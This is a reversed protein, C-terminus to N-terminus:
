PARDETTSGAWRIGAAQRAIGSRQKRTVRTSRPKIGKRRFRGLVVATSNTGKDTDPRPDDIAIAPAMPPM